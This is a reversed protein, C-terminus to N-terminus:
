ALGHPFARDRHNLSDLVGRFPHPANGTRDITDVVNGKLGMEEAYKIALELMRLTKLYAFKNAPKIYREYEKKFNKEKAFLAQYHTRKQGRLKTLRTSYDSYYDVAWNDSRKKSTKIRSDILRKAQVLNEDFILEEYERLFITIDLERKAHFYAADRNANDAKIKKNLFIIRSDLSDLLQKTVEDIYKEQSFSNLSFLSLFLILLSYIPKM